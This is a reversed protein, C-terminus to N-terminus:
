RLKATMSGVRTVIVTRVYRDCRLGREYRHSSRKCTRYFARRGMNSLPTPWVSSNLIAPSQAQALLSPASM